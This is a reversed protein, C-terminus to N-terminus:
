EKEAQHISNGDLLTVEWYGDASRYAIFKKGEIEIIKYRFGCPVTKMEGGLDNQLNAADPECSTLFLLCTSALCTIIFKKM